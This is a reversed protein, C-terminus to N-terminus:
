DGDRVATTQMSGPDSGANPETQGFFTKMEGNIVPWLYKQKQEETALYLAPPINNAILNPAGFSAGLISKKTEETVLCMGLNGLGQGGYEIPVGLGWLGQARLIDRLEKVLPKPLQDDYYEAELPIVYQDMFSRIRLQLELLEPPLSFDM